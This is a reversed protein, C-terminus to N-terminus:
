RPYPTSRFCRRSTSLLSRRLAIAPAESNNTVASSLELACRFTCFTVSAWILPRSAQCLSPRGLFCAVVSLYAERTPRNKVGTHEIYGQELLVESPHFAETKSEIPKLDDVGVVTGEASTGSELIAVTEEAYIITDQSRSADEIKEIDHRPM